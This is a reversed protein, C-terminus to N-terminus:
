GSKSGVSKPRLTHAALKELVDAVCDVVMRRLFGWSM